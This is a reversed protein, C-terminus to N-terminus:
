TWRLSGSLRTARVTTENGTCLLGRGPLPWVYVFQLLKSALSAAGCPQGITECALGKM